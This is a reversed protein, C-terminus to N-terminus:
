PRCRTCRWSTRSSPWPPSQASRAAPPSSALLRDAGLVGAGVRHRPSLPRCRAGVAGVCVVSHQVASEPGLDALGRPVLLVQEHGSVALISDTDFCNGTPHFFHPKDSSCVKSLKTHQTSPGFVSLAKLYLRDGPAEGPDPCTEMLQFVPVYPNWLMFSLHFFLDALPLPPDDNDGRPACRFRCVLAAGAALRRANSGPKLGVKIVKLFSSRFRLLEKGADTCVCFGVSACTMDGSAPDAPDAPLQEDDIPPCSGHMVTQHQALWQKEVLPGLSGAKASNRVMWSVAHAAQGVVSPSWILTCSSPTSAPLALLDATRFGAASLANVQEAGVEKAFWELAQAEQQEAARDARVREASLRRAQRVVDLLETGRDLGARAVALAGEGTPLEVAPVRRARARLVWKRNPGFAGVQRVSDGRQRLARTASAAMARARRLLVGDSSNPDAAQARRYHLGLEHMDARRKQGYSVLRVWARWPGPNKKEHKKVRQARPKSAQSVPCVSCAFWM